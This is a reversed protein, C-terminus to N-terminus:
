YITISLVSDKGEKIISAREISGIVRNGNKTIVVVKTVKSLDVKM